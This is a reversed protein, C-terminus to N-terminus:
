FSQHWWFGNCIHMDPIWTYDQFRGVSVQDLCQIFGELSIADPILGLAEWPFFLQTPSRLSELLSKLTFKRENSLSENPLIRVLSFPLSRLILSLFPNNGQLVVIVKFYDAAPCHLMRGPENWFRSAWSCLECYYWWCYDYHINAWPSKVKILVKGEIKRM